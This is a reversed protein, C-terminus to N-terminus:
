EAVKIDKSYRKKIYEAKVKSLERSQLYPNGRTGHVIAKAKEVWAKEILEVDGAEMGNMAMGSAIQQQMLMQQTMQPPITQQSSINMPQAHTFNGSPVSSSGGFTPESPMTAPDVPPLTHDPSNSPQM